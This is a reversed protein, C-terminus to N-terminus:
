TERVVCGAIGKDVGKWAVDTGCVEKGVYIWLRREECRNKM